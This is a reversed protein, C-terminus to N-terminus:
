PNRTRFIGDGLPTRLIQPSWSAPTQASSFSWARAAARSATSFGPSWSGAGDLEHWHPEAEVARTCGELLSSTGMFVTWIPVSAPCVVRIEPSRSLLYSSASM